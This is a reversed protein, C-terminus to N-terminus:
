KLKKRLGGELPTEFQHLQRLYYVGHNYADTSHSLAHNSPPKIGSIKEAIAKIDPSQLVFRAGSLRMWMRVAGIIQVAEFRSGIQQKAKSAFLRYDEVVVAALRPLYVDLNALTSLFDRDMGADLLEGGQYKLTVWGTTDGPDIALLMDREPHARDAELIANLEIVKM